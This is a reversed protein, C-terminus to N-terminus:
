IKLTSDLYRNFITSIYCTVSSFKKQSAHTLLNFPRSFVFFCLLIKSIDQLFGILVNLQKIFLFSTHCNSKVCIKLNYNM